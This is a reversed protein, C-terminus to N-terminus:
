QRLVQSAHAFDVFNGPRLLLKGSLGTLDVELCGNKHTFAVDSPLTIEVGKFIVTNAM